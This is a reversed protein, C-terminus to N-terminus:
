RLPAIERIYHEQLAEIKCVESNRINEWKNHIKHCCLVCNNRYSEVHLYRVQDLLNDTVFSIDSITYLDEIDSEEIFNDWCGLNSWSLATDCM